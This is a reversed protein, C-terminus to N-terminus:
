ATLAPTPAGSKLVRAISRVVRRSGRQLLDVRLPSALAEGQASHTVVIVPLHLADPNLEAIIGREGTNLEVASYIPFVGVRKIFFSTLERDLGGEQAQRFLRHLAEHPQAPTRGGFGTLLEDYQDAIMVIRSPTSIWRPNIESPFGIGDPLAHHEAAVRRVELPFGGQRELDIAGQKAHAQYLTRERETLGCSSDHIRRLLPLPVHSLGVDHLLAGVALEQLAALNFDLAQGLIMSLACTAMAHHSLLPAHERAQSMAMILAPNTLTRAVISIEQAAEHAEEPDIVGTASINDFLCQVTRELKQRAAKAAHLEQTLAELARPVKIGPVIAPHPYLTPVGGTKAPPSVDLGREPDIVLETIGYRRLRQIEEASRVLFRHRLFPTRFWSRDFGSVFMGVRLDDLAIRRTTM